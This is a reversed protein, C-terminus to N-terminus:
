STLSLERSVESQEVEVASWRLQDATAKHRWKGFRLLWDRLAYWLNKGFWTRLRPECEPDMVVVVGNSAVADRVREILVLEQAGPTLTEISYALLGEGESGTIAAGGPSSLDMAERVMATMSECHELHVSHLKETPGSGMITRHRRKNFM